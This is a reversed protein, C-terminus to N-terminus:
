CSRIRTITSIVLISGKMLINIKRVCQQRTEIQKEQQQILRILRFIFQHSLMNTIHMLIHSSWLFLHLRKLRIQHPSIDSKTFFIIWHNRFINLLLYHLIVNFLSAVVLLGKLSIVFRVDVGGWSRKKTYDSEGLGNGSDTETLLDGLSIYIFSQSQHILRLSSNSIDMPLSPTTSIFMFLVM